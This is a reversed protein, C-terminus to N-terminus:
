SRVEAAMWAWYKGSVFHPVGNDLILADEQSRSQPLDSHRLHQSGASPQNVMSQLQRYGRSDSRARLPLARQFRFTDHRCHLLLASIRSISHGLHLHSRLNAKCSHAAHEMSSFRNLNSFRFSPQTLHQNPPRLIQTAVVLYAYIRLGSISSVPLRALM